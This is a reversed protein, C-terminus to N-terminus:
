FTGGDLINTIVIPKPPEPPTRFQTEMKNEMDEFEAVLALADRISMKLETVNKGINKLRSKLRNIENM